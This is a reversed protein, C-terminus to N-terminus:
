DIFDFLRGYGPVRERIFAARLCAWMMAQKSSVVPVGLDQELADIIGVSPMAAGPLWIGEPRGAAVYASKVEEYLSGLPIRGIAGYKGDIRHAAVIDVGAHGVYERVEQSREDTFPSVMLVRSAELRQFAELSSQVDTVFPISTVKSVQAHLEDEYGWGRIAVHPVGAVAIAHVEQRALVEVARPIRSFPRNLSDPSLFEGSPPDDLSVLSVITLAVGEPAMLYFEHPHNQNAVAPFLFGIRGRWGYAAGQSGAIGV